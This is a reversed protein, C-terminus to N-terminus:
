KLDSFHWYGANKKLPWWQTIGINMKQLTKTGSEFFNSWIDIVIPLVQKYKDAMVQFYPILDSSSFTLVYKKNLTSFKPLKSWIKVFTCLIPIPCITLCWGPFRLLIDTSGCIRIFRPVWNRCSISSVNKLIWQGGNDMRKQIVYRPGPKLPMLM